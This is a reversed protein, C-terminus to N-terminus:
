ASTKLKAILINLMKMVEQLLTNTKDFDIPNIYGLEKVILIQTELEAGSGFAIQLFQLYELRRHRCYGEAINSPVSIACRRM